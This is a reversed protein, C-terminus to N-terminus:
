RGNAAVFYVLFLLNTQSLWGFTAIQCTCQRMQSWIKEVLGNVIGALYHRIDRYCVFQWTDPILKPM